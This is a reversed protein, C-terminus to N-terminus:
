WVQHSNNTTFTTDDVVSIDWFSITNLSVACKMLRHLIEEIDKAAVYGFDAKIHKFEESDGSNRLKKPFSCFAM